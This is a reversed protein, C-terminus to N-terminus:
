GAPVGPVVMQTETYGAPIEFKAPEVAVERMLPNDSEKFEIRASGGDVWAEARIVQPKQGETEVRTVTQYHIGAHAPAAALAAAALVAALAPARLARRRFTKSRVSNSRVSNPRVTSPRVTPQQMTM